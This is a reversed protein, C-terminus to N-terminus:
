RNLGSLDAENRLQSQLRKRARLIMEAKKEQLTKSRADASNAWTNSGSSEPMIEQNEDIGYRKLLNEPKIKSVTNREDVEAIAPRPTEGAPFPLTGESLIRDVTEQVSGTRQLDYRIQSVTLHPALSQVVEIMDTTVPRRNQERQQAPRTEETRQASQLNSGAVTLDEDESNIFWRLFIFAVVLTAIFLLTSNEM